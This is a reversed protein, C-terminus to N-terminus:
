DFWIGGLESFLKNFKKTLGMKDVCWWFVYNQHIDFFDKKTFLDKLEDM